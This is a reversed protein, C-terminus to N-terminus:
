YGYVTINDFWGTIDGANTYLEATVYGPMFASNTTATLVTATGVYGTIVDGEIVFLKPNPTKIAIASQAYPYGYAYSSDIRLAGNDFNLTPLPGSNSKAVWNSLSAASDFTDNFVIVYSSKFRAELTRNGSVTFVYTATTSVQSGDEYWGIFMYGTNPVATLTATSGCNYTGSGTVTGYSTNNPAASVTYQRVTYNATVSM